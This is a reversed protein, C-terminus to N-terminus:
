GGSLHKKPKQHVCDWLFITGDASGSALLDIDDIMLLVNIELKHKKSFWCMEMIDLDWCTLQGDIGGTFLKGVQSNWALCLQIEKTTFRNKMVCNADWLCVTKDAGCTAFQDFTDVYCGNIVTCDHQSVEHKVTCSDPRYFRFGKSSKTLCALLDWEPVFILKQVDNEHKSQDTVSSPSYHKMASDVSSEDQGSVGRDIIFTSLADWSIQGERFVDVENFFDMVATTATLVDKQSMMVDGGEM